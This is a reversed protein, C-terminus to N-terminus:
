ESICIDASYYDWKLIKSFEIKNRELIGRVSHTTKNSTLDIRISRYTLEKTIVKVILFTM